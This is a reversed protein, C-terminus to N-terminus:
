LPSIQAGMPESTIFIVYDVLFWWITVSNNLLPRMLKCSFPTKVPSFPRSRPVRWNLPLLTSMVSHSDGSEYGQQEYTTFQVHCGFLTRVPSFPHSRSVRWYLPSLSSMVSHSDSSEYDQQESTAFQVHCYCLTKVPSFPRSRPVRRNLPSLSSM